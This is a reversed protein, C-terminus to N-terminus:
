TLVHTEGWVLANLFIKSSEEGGVGGERRDDIKVNFHVDPTDPPLDELINKFVRGPPSSM